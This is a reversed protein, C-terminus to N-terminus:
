FYLTKLAKDKLTAAYYDIEKKLSQMYEDILIDSSNTPISNFSCYACKSACFPIHIYLSLMPLDFILYPFSYIRNISLIEVRFCNRYLFFSHLYANRLLEDKLTSTKSINIM